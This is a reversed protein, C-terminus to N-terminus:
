KGAEMTRLKERADTAYEGTPALKLYERYGAAAGAAKSRVRAEALRYWAEAFRADIVVARELARVAEAPRDLETLVIGHFYQAPANRPDLRSAEGLSEAARPLAGQYYQARGTLTLCEAVLRPAAGRARLSQLATGLAALAAGPNGADLELRGQALTVEPARPFRKQVQQLEKRAAAAEGADGLAAVYLLRADLDTDDLGVGRKLTSAAKAGEHRLLAARGWERLLLARSAGLQQARDAYRGAAEPDRALSAARAAAVASDADPARALVADLERRAGTGDGLEYLLLALERRAEVLDPRAGLVAEVHSRAQEWKGEGRLLRALQLRAPALNPNREVAQALRARAGERDGRALLVQALAELVEAHRPEEQSLRTLLTQAAGLRGAAIEVQALALRAPVLRPALSLATGLEARAEDYRRLGALARGRLLRAEPDSAPARVLEALAADAKGELLALGARRLPVSPRPLGDFRPLEERARVAQGGRLWGACLEDAFVPDREPREAAARALAALGRSGDGRELYLRGLILDAWAIQGPGAYAKLKGSAVAILDQEAADLDGRRLVAVLAQDLMTGVHITNVELAKQWATRAEADRRAAAHAAGLARLSQIHRPDRALAEALLPIAAPYAGEMLRLRAELYPGRPDRPAQEALLRARRAADPLDGQALALAAEAAALDPERAARGAAAAVAARAPAVPEGFELAIAAATAARAALARPDRPREHVAQEYSKLAIVHGPYNGTALQRAAVSLQAEVRHRTTLAGIVLASVAIFLVAAAVILGLRLARARAGTGLLATLRATFPPTAPLRVPSPRATTPVEEEEDIRPAPRPPPAAFPLQARPRSRAARPTEPATSDCSDAAPRGGHRFGLPRTEPEPASAALLDLPTPSLPAAPAPAPARAPPPTPAPAPRFARRASGLESRPVTEDAEDEDEGVVEPGSPAMIIPTLGGREPRRLTSDGGDGFDEEPEAEADDFDTLEISGTETMPLGTESDYTGSAMRPRPARAAAAAVRAAPVAPSAAGTLLAPAGEVANTPPEDMVDFVPHPAPRASMGAPPAEDVMTSDPEDFDDDQPGRPVMGDMPDGGLESPRADRFAPYERTNGGESTRDPLLGDRRASTIEALLLVVRQRDHAREHARRLVEEAQQFDGKLYLAEGQILLADGHDPTTELAVRMEALVEDHRGLAMLAQALIVRGEVLTPNHLLGLRCVKIAEQYQRRAILVKAQRVFEAGADARPDPPEITM